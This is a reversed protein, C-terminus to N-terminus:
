LTWESVVDVHAESRIVTAHINIQANRESILGQALMRQTFMCWTNM